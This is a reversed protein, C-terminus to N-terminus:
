EHWNELSFVVMHPRCSFSFISIQIEKFLVFEITITDNACKTMKIYTLYLRIKGQPNDHTLILIIHVHLFENIKKIVELHYKELKSYVPAGVDM